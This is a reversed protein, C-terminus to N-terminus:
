YAPTQLPVGHEAEIMSVISGATSNFNTLSEALERIASNRAEATQNADRSKLLSSEASTAIDKLMNAGSGVKTLIAHLERIESWVGGVMYQTALDKVKEIGGVRAVGSVGATGLSTALSTVDWERASMKLQAQLATLKSGGATKALDSTFTMSKFTSNLTDYSMMEAVGSDDTNWRAVVKKKIKLETLVKTNVEVQFKGYRELLLSTLVHVVQSPDNIGSYVIVYYKEEGTLQFHTYEKFAPGGELNKGALMSEAIGKVDELVHKSETLRVIWPIKEGNILILGKEPTVYLPVVTCSNSSEM